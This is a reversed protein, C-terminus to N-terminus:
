AARNMGLALAVALFAPGGPALIRVGHRADGPSAQWTLSSKELGIRPAGRGTDKRRLLRASELSRRLTKRLRMLHWLRKQPIHDMIPAGSLEDLV